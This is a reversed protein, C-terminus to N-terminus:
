SRASSSRRIYLSGGYFVSAALTGLTEEQRQKWRGRATEEERQKRRESNGGRATEEERQKRRERFIARM